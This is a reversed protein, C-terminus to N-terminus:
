KITVSGIMGAEKHGPIACEIVANDIPQLPVFFWEYSKGAGVEMEHVGGKIEAILNDSADKVLVKRTFLHHPLQGLSIEHKIEDVNNLIVKYAKGTEFDFHNPKFYMGTDNSGMELTVETIDTKTLDGTAFAPSALAIATLAVAISMRKM